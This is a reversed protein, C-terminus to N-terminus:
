RRSATAQEAAPPEFEPPLRFPFHTTAPKVTVAEGQVNGFSRFEGLRVPDEWYCSVTPPAAGQAVRWRSLEVAAEHPLPLRQDPSNCATRISGVDYTEALSICKSVGQPGPLDFLLYCKDDVVYIALTPAAQEPKVFYSGRTAEWQIELLDKVHKPSNALKCRMAADYYPRLYARAEGYVGAATGAENRYPDLALRCFSLLLDADENWHFANEADGHEVLTRAAFLCLELQDRHPNQGVEDRFVLLAERLAAVAGPSEAKSAERRGEGEEIVALVHSTLEGLGRFLGNAKGPTQAQYIRDAEACMIKALPVDQIASPLSLVLAQKYLLTARQRQREEAAVGLLHIRNLSRRYDDFAEKLDRTEPPGFLHCDGLREQSNTFRELLTAEATDDGQDVSTRLHSLSAEIEGLLWRYRRAAGASDGQFRQAMALGHLNHFYAVKTHYQTSQRFVEDLAFCHTPDDCPAKAAETRLLTPPQDAPEIGAERDTRDSNIIESL